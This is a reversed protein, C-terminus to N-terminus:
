YTSCFTQTGIRNCSTQKPASEIARQVARENAEVQANNMARQRRFNAVAMGMQNCLERSVVLDKQAAVAANLYAPLVTYPELVNRSLIQAGNGQLALGRAHGPGDSRLPNDAECQDEGTRRHQDRLHESEGPM